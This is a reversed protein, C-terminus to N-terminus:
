HSPMMGEEPTVPKSEENTALANESDTTASTSSALPARSGMEPFYFGPPFITLLMAPYLVMAGELVYFLVENRMIANGWGGAM